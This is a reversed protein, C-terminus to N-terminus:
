KRVVSKFAIAELRKIEEKACAAQYQYYKATPYKSLIGQIDLLYGKWWILNYRM